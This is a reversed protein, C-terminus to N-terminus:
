RSVAASITNSSFKALDVEQHFAWCCADAIICCSPFWQTSYFARNDANNVSSSPYEAYAAKRQWRVSSRWCRRQGMVSPVANARGMYTPGYAMNHNEALIRAVAKIFRQAVKTKAVLIVSRRVLM